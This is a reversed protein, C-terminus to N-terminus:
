RLSRSFSNLVKRSESILFGPARRAIREVSGSYVILWSSSAPMRVRRPMSAACCCAIVLYAAAQLCRMKDTKSVFVTVSSIGARVASLNPM